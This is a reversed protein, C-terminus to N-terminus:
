KLLDDLAANMEDFDNNYSEANANLMENIANHMEKHRNVINQLVANKTNQLKEEEKKVEEFSKMLEIDNLM